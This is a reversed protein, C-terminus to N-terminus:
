ILGRSLCYHYIGDESVTGCMDDAVAKLQATANGMAVGVGVSKLMELDNQSDGFAMSQSADLGFYALVKAIAVGKGGSAPIVDVARDWSVAIKVGQAGDLLAAHDTRRCVSLIQYVDEQCAADFDSAVTLELKALRYYDALDPDWGNAALRNRTAVSVPRGIGAANRIVQAVDAAAIPNSHLIESGAYCLSGNYTCYADFRLQGFDPVASPARGTSLCIKIGREKLRTLAFITKDSVMGSEPDVLTGDIDFFIIKVPIM